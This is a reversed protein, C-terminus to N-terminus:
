IGRARVTQRRGLNVDIQNSLSGVLVGSDLVIDNGIPLNVLANLIADLKAGIDGGNGNLPTVQAGQPLTLLEAGAEGVMVTGSGEIVGGKALRPIHPFNFSTGGVIPVWDPIDISGFSDFFGNFKDIIFNIAGKAINKIGEWIGSFIQSVGEWAKQWDGSFVGSVFTIIGTLIPKLSTEWLNIISEFVKSVVPTVAEIVPMLSSILGSVFNVVTGVIQQIEPMHQIVWDLMKQVIPMLEAGIQTGVAGLAQKVDSMTDGMKVGASVAEDSMIIGLDHANDRLGQFDEGTGALIPSLQYALSEGFLESAKASREEETGLAMIQDIADDFNLDTGELKKAAKELTGMEVGCQGAAYALEQYAEKSVGMRISGKDITDAQKAAADATKLIAAGAVAAGGALAAGWKAATGIGKGLKEALGGAKDDTESISKNAKENDVLISGFLKFIEM